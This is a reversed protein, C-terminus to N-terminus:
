MRLIGIISRGLDLLSKRRFKVYYVLFVGIILLYSMITLGFAFLMNRDLINWFFLFLMAGPMVVAITLSFIVARDAYYHKWSKKEYQFTRELRWVVYRGFLIAYIVFSGLFSAFLFDQGPNKYWEFMGFQDHFVLKGVGAYEAQYYYFIVSTAVAWYVVSLLLLITLTRKLM